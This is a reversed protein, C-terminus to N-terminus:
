KRNTLDFQQKSKPKYLTRKKLRRETPEYIRDGDILFYDPQEPLIWSVAQTSAIYIKEADGKLLSKYNLYITDHSVKYTGIDFQIRVFNYPQYFTESIYTNNDRLSLLFVNGQNPRIATSDPRNLYCNKLAYYCNQFSYLNFKDPLLDASPMYFQSKIEQDIKALIFSDLTTGQAKVAGAFLCCASILM